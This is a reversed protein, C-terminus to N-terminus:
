HSHDPYAEFNFGPVKCDYGQRFLQFEWLARPTKLASDLPKLTECIKKPDLNARATGKSCVILIEMSDSWRLQRFGGLAETKQSEQWSLDSHSLAQILRQMEVLPVYATRGEVTMPATNIRPDLQKVARFILPFHYYEEEDHYFFRIATKEDVPSNLVPKRDVGRCSSLSTASALAGLVLWWIHATRNKLSMSAEM